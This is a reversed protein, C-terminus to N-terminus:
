RWQWVTNSGTLKIYVNGTDM